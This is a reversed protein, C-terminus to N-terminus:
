NRGEASVSITMSSDTELVVAPVSLTSIRPRPPLGSLIYPDAGAFAGCDAGNLCAGNALSGARLEFRTDAVESGTWEYVTNPLDIASGIYNDHVQVSSGSNKDFGSIINNYAEGSSNDSFSLDIHNPADSQDECGQKFSNNAVIAYGSVGISPDTTSNVARCFINNTIIASTKGVVSISGTFYNKSIVTDYVYTEDGSYENLDFGVSDLCNRTITINRVTFGSREDNIIVVDGGTVGALVSNSPDHVIGDGDTEKIFYINDVITPTDGLYYGNEELLYGTGYISVQKSVWAGGYSVGGMSPGLLITDGSSAADVAEQLTRYSAEHATNNDVRLTAAQSLPASLCYTLITTLLTLYMKRTLKM